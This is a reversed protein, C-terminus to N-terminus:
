TEATLLVGIPNAKLYASLQRLLNWGVMGHDWSAPATEVFRGRVLEGRVSGGIALLQEATTPSPQSKLAIRSVM